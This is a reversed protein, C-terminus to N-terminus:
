CGLDNSFHGPQRVRSFTWGVSFAVSRVADSPGYLFRKLQPRYQLATLLSNRAEFTNQIHLAQVGLLLSLDLHDLNTLATVAVQRSTATKAAEVAQNQRDIAFVALGLALFSFIILSAIFIRTRNKAWQQLALSAQIFATEDKNLALAHNELLLEFQALRSGSALFSADRGTNLWELTATSLRRQILLNERNHDVWQKLRTWERILAEHALEVTPMRSSPEHDLTLLRYKAFADIVRLLSQKGSALSFLEEQLVRRRTKEADENTIVLRLFLQQAAEQDSLSLSKYVEDARRALAGLLGGIAEYTALTLQNGEHREFLETLAYQLLPLAGPEHNVDLVMHTVLTPEIYVGARQAPEEIAKVLEGSSLPLVVETSGRVLDGFGPYLLPRDYFDARLTIIVRFRSDPHSVAAQLSRLFLLRENEDRVQTFLEEFQDIVLLFDEEQSPLVTDLAQSLGNEDKKLADLLNTPANTAISLLAREM